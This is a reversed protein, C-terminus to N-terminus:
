QDTFTYTITIPLNSRRLHTIETITSSYSLQCGNGTGIGTYAGKIGTVIDQSGTSLLINGGLATGRQGAGAGTPGSVQLFLSLGTPLATELQVQIKRTVTSSVASTYNLWLGAHVAPPQLNQGPSTPLAFTLTIDKSGSSAVSMLAVGPLTFNVDSSGSKQAASTKILFLIMLM